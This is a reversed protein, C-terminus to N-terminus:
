GRIAFGRKESDTGAMIASILMLISNIYPIGSTVINWMAFRGICVGWSLGEGNPRVVLLGCAMKGLTGGKYKLMLVEYCALIAFYGVFFTLGFVALAAINPNTNTNNEMSKFLSPVLFIALTFFPIGLVLGDVMRAGLRIWFGGYRFGSLAATPGSAMIRSLFAPKCEGCVWNGAILVVDSQSFNRGCQSCPLVTEPLVEQSM